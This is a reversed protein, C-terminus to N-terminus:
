SFRRQLFPLRQNRQRQATKLKNRLYKVDVTEGGYRWHLYAHSIEDVLDSPISQTNHRVARGFELPTQVPKKVVGESKLWQVMQQYLAEMPPLQKLWRRYRWRQWGSWGLWGVFAIAIALGFGILAGVWGQRFLLTLRAVIWAFVGAIWAFVGNLFGAVPSPLWGAIWDWFQRLVGFAQYDNVTPPIVEMGPIPNFAFWGYSGMYAETLLLADTNRVVYYGTFPNFQSPLFGASVRTPIGISRLMVTLVTSFHDPYGGGYKFLFAEVLDESADFFPLDTQVTYNQKLFQALYLSQEYPSTIPNPANDLIERTREQVRQRLEAPLELYYNTVDEPYRRTTEELRTRDRYPIQSVVTYTLGDTLPLPARLGGEADIAIEETPFYLQQAEYMAPILNPFEEVVVTYSQVVERRRGRSIGMPLHFRFSWSSRTLTELQEEDNRSVEWGQGTYRDFAMVRMFGEAQSRVRMVVQPEMEGRLNQNIRTNFGYYFEPNLEGPGTEPAEGTGEGEGEGTGSIGPRVYGPNIVTEPDFDEQLDIPASVPFNRIQYGPFRPMLTFIALGLALTLLLFGSMRKASLDSRVGRFGSTIVGLRSRYDLMLVPIAIAVFALLIPAFFLTQSLTAAVGLLIIGIVVSYGLDKRRPLDFSHFVQLQILLEALVLRTDNGGELLRIFFLALAVLMAIAICFKVLINARRRRYWSWCGGAASMPVAWFSIGPSDVVDLAAVDVAIIGVIVLLQVMVRLPISEEIKTPPQPKFRQWLEKLRNPQTTNSQQFGTSM